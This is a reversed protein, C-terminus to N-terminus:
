AARPLRGSRPRADPRRGCSIAVRAVGAARAGRVTRARRRLREAVALAERVYVRADPARDDALAHALHLRAAVHDPAIETARRILILGAAKDGGFPSPM